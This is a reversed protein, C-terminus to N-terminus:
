ADEPPPIADRDVWERSWAHVPQSAVAFKSVSRGTEFAHACTGGVINAGAVTYSPHTWSNPAQANALANHRVNDYKRTIVIEIGVPFVPCASRFEQAIYHNLPTTHHTGHIAAQEPPADM